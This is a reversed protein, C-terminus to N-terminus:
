RWVDALLATSRPTIARPLLSASPQSSLYAWHSSPPPSERVRCSPQPTYHSRGVGRRGLAARQPRVDEPTARLRRVTAQPPLSHHGSTWRAVRLRSRVHAIPLFTM